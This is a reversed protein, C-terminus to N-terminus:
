RLNHRLLQQTQYSCVLHLSIKEGLHLVLEVRSHQMLFKLTLVVKTEPLVVVEVVMDLQTTIMEEEVLV